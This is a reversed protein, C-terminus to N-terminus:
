KKSFIKKFHINKFNSNNKLTERGGARTGHVRAVARQGEAQRPVEEVRALVRAHGAGLAGVGLLRLRHRAQGAGGVGADRPHAGGAQRAAGVPALYVLTLFLEAVPVGDAEEM